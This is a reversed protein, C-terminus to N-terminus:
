YNEPYIQFFAEEKSCIPCIKPANKGEIINGCNRCQWLVENDKKFVKDNKMNTILAKYRQEHHLEINAIGEFLRAIQIFGEENADNAFDKYMKSWEFNEGSRAIELNTLTNKIGELYKYWIKAHELENLATYEFIEAIQEYGEEIAKDKFFLYKAHAAVEGTFATYLNKETKTGKLEM